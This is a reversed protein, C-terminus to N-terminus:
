DCVRCTACRCENTSYLKRDHQPPNYNYGSDVADSIPLDRAFLIWQMVSPFIWGWFDININDMMYVRGHLFRKDNAHDWFQRRARVPFPSIFIKTQFSSRKRPRERPREASARYLQQAIKMSYILEM